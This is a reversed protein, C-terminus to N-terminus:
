NHRWLRLIQKVHNFLESYNYGSGRGCYWWGWLSICQPSPVKDETFLLLVRHTRPFFFWYIFLYILGTQKSGQLCYNTPTKMKFNNRSTAETVEESEPVQQSCDNKIQREKPTGYPWQVYSLQSIQCQELKFAKSWCTCSQPRKPTPIAAALSNRLSAM